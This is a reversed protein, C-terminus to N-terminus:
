QDKKMKVKWEGDQKVLTIADKGDFMVVKGSKQTCKFSVTASDGDIKCESVEFKAGKKEDENKEGTGGMEKAMTLLAATEPVCFKKAGEFDGETYVKEVFGLAVPEPSGGSCGAFSLMAGVCATLAAVKMIRKM